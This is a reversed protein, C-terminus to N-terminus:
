SESVVAQPPRLANGSGIVAMGGIVLALGIFYRVDLQEGYFIVAGAPVLVFALAMFPYASSLPIERLAFIWLFTASLYLIMAAIFWPDFLIRGLIAIMGSVDAVDHATRKFLLQGGAVLIAFAFLKLM